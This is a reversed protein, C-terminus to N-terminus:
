HRVLELGAVISILLCVICSMIVIPLRQNKRVPRVFDRLSPEPRASLPVPAEPTEKDHNKFAYYVEGRTTEIDVGRMRLIRAAASENDRLLGLLIHETGVFVQNFQKAERVALALVRKVRPTYPIKSPPVNEPNIAVCKEVEVRTTEIDLGLKQLINFAVGQGLGILGLLLHETGVYSHHLRGAEKRSLALVLGARLTFSNM